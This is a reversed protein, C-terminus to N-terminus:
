SSMDKKTEEAGKHDIDVFLREFDANKFSKLKEQIKGKVRKLLAKPYKEKSNM